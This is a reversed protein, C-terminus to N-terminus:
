SGTSRQRGKTSVPTAMPHPDVAPIARTSMRAGPRHRHGLTGLRAAAGLELGTETFRLNDGSIVLVHGARAGELWLADGVDTGDLQQSHMLEGDVRLAIAGGDGVSCTCTDQAPVASYDVTHGASFRVAKAM